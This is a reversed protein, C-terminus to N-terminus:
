RQGKLAEEDRGRMPKTGDYSSLLGSLVPVDADLEGCGSCAVIGIAADGGIARRQM